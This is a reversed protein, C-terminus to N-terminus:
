MIISTPVFLLEDNEKVSQLAVIGKGMEPFMKIAINSSVNGGATRFWNLFTSIKEEESLQNDVNSNQILLVGVLLIFLFAPISVSSKKNKGVSSKPTLQVRDHKGIAAVAINCANPRKRM